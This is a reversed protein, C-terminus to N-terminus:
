ITNEGAVYGFNALIGGDVFIVQGNIYDGARSSLLLAAGVLDEPQGWRGAPTRTMVLENFPHGQERIPATQATAIYGPGIANVQINFKAWECCMCQTLLKLGGKASAYASVSKRGYVSMMSCLNIIKGRRREIMPPAVRRTVIFPAVLDVELVERYESVAMELIPVRRILGANNILIDVPGIAKEIQSIGRDVADERTVDFNLLYAEIGIKRYAEAALELKQDSIDNVCIKAGARALGTAIAFGIGHTAGTILATKGTLNFLESSMDNTKKPTNYGNGACKGFERM